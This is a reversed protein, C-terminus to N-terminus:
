RGMNQGPRRQSEKVTPVFEDSESSTSLLDSIPSIAAKATGTVSPVAAATSDISVEIGKSKLVECLQIGIDFRLGDAFLLCESEEAEISEKSMLDQLNTSDILKQFHEACDRLYPMYLVRIACTVASIDRPEAEDCCSIAKLVALDAKYGAEIYAKAMEGLSSKSLPKATLLAVEHLCKLAFSLPAQGLKAWVWERRQNHKSELQVIKKGAEAPNLDSCSILENRLKDEEQSNDQPWSSKEAFLEAPRAKKLLGPINPYNQPAEAFRQWVTNWNNERLGL